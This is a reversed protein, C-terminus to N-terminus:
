HSKIQVVRKSNFISKSIEFLSSPNQSTNSKTNNSTQLESSQTVPLNTQNSNSNQNSNSPDKRSDFDEGSNYNETM